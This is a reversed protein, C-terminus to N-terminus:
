TMFEQSSAQRNTSPWRQFKIKSFITEDSVIVANLIERDMIGM